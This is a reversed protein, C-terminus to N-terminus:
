NIHINEPLYYISYIKNDYNNSEFPFEMVKFAPLKLKGFNLPTLNFSREINQKDNILIREKVRGNIIFYQSNDILLLLRKSEDSRNNVFIKFHFNEKNKIDKPISYSLDIDFNKMNYEPINFIIKNELKDNFESLGFTKYFIEVNGLSGSYPQSCIFTMPISFETSRKLQFVQSSRDDKVIKSSIESISSKLLNVLFSTLKIDRIKNNIKIKTITFDEKIENIINLDLKINKNTPFIKIKQLSM